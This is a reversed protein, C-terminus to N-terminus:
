KHGASGWAHGVCRGNARRQLTLARVLCTRKTCDQGMLSFHEDGRLLAALGCWASHNERDHM